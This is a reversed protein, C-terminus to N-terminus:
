REIDIVREGTEMAHELMYARNILAKTYTKADTLIQEKEAADSSNDALTQM